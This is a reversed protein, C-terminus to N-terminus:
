ERKKTSIEVHRPWTQTASKTMRSTTARSAARSSKRSLDHREAVRAIMTGTIATEDRRNARTGEADVIIGL